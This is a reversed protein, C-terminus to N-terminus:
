RRYYASTLLVCCPLVGHQNVQNAQGGGVSHFQVARKELWRYVGRRGARNVGNQADVPRPAVEISRGRGVHGVIQPVPAVRGQRQVRAAVIGHPHIPLGADGLAVGVLNQVRAPLVQAGSDVIQSAPSVPADPYQAVAHARHFDRVIGCGLGVVPNRRDYGHRRHAQRARVVQLRFVGLLKAAVQLSGVAHFSLAAGQVQEVHVEGDLFHERRGGVQVLVARQFAVVDDLM